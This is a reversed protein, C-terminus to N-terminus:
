KLTLLNFKIIKKDFIYNINIFGIENSFYYITTVLGYKSTSVARIRSCEYKNSNFILTTDKEYNYISTINTNKYEEWNSGTHIKSKWNKKIIGKNKQIEPFASLELEKMKSRPPHLWILKSNEILGTLEWFNCSDKELQNKNSYYKYKIKSQDFLSGPIVKLVIFYSTDKLPSKIDVQYVFESNTKYIVNDDNYKSLVEYQRETDNFDATDINLLLNCSSLGILLLFLLIIINKSGRLFGGNQNISKVKSM